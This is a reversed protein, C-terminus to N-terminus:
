ELFSFNHGPAVSNEMLLKAVEDQQLWGQSFKTLVMTSRHLAHRAGAVPGQQLQHGPNTKTASNRQFIAAVKIAEIREVFRRQSGHERRRTDLLAHKRLLPLQSPKM